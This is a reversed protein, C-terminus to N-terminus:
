ARRITAIWDGTGTVGVEHLRLVTLPVGYEEGALTFTLYKGAKSETM